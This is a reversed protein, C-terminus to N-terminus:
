GSPHVLGPHARFFWAPGELFDDLSGNGDVGNSTWAMVGDWGLRFANQWNQLITQGSSGKSSTEGVICPKGSLGMDSPSQEFPSGFWRRVWDYYHVNYFDVHAGPKRASLSADSLITGQYKASIYKAATGMGECVLVRSNRHVAEAVRAILDVTDGMPMHQNDFTWDLENGVDIAWFYPNGGYRRVLPVVYSDVFSQRNKPDAYMLRWSDARPNGPKTHDFSILATMLYVRESRAIEFLSDLDKWFRPTPPLVRGNASIGPSDNQGSCSIWVRTANVHAAALSHFQNRWWQEDFSNGFDNWNKWPTNTGSIWIRKGDVQFRTGAVSIRQGLSLGSIALLGLAAWAKTM